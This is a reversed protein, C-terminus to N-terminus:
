NKGVVITIVGVESSNYSELAKGLIVGPQYNSTVLTTAVGPNNSSVLRDGKEIIGVVLCPVRGTLGVTVVHEGELGSNMLYAPKDSVVGAVRTSHDHTTITVEQAGGFELVTGPPYNNDALYREALDAYQASSATGIFNGSIVNGTSAGNVTLNGTNPNYLLGPDDGYITQLSGVAPVLLPYYTSNTATDTALAQTGPGTAGQYGTAGIPGTAGALGSAGTAGTTGALGSAGTAGPLGSAGTAGINGQVGSAGTAGAGTAGAGTAGTLGTAGTAGIGGNSSINSLFQGDGIFYNAYVGQTVIANGVVSVNGPELQDFGPQITYDNHTNKYTAM